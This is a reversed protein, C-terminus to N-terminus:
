DAGARYAHQLAKSQLKTNRKRSTAKCVPTSGLRSATNLAV